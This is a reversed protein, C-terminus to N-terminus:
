DVKEPAPVSKKEEKDIYLDERENSKLFVIRYAFRTHKWVLALYTGSVLPKTVTTEGASNVVKAEYKKTLTCNKLDYESDLTFTHASGVKRETIEIDFDGLM